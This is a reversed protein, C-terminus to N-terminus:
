FLSLRLLHVFLCVEKKDYDSIDITYSKTKWGDMMINQSHCNNFNDGIRIYFILLRIEGALFKLLVM